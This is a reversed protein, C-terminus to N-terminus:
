YANLQFSGPQLNFILQGKKPAPIMFIAPREQRERTGAALALSCARLSSFTSQTWWKTQIFYLYYLGTAQQGELSQAGSFPTSITAAALHADGIQVLQQHDWNRAFSLLDPFHINDICAARRWEQESGLTWSKAKIKLQVVCACISHHPNPGDINKYIQMSSHLLPGQQWCCIYLSEKFALAIKYIALGRKM